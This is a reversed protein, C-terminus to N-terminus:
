EGTPESTPALAARNAEEILNFVHQHGAKEIEHEMQQRQGPTLLLKSLADVQAQMRETDARFADIDRKEDRGKLRIKEDALKAMLESNLAILRKNQEQLSLLQPDINSDFLYPKQAKLERQFRECMEDAGPFDANKLLLDFGLSALENNSQMLMSLREWAEQRQTAYDPGPDSVCEYEGIAPNLAIQAAEEDMKEQQLEQVAEKQEPDIMIWSRKGADDEIQMARKTDYIKPALDLFQVGLFREMDSMHEPFHYTATDGQEKRENIAKGSAASQTDNEGLQAQYQGSVMMMWREATQIGQIYAQSPQPRDIRQPPAIRQLEGDAEDDVDNYTLVAVTEINATKWAEQGEIARAPAVWPSRTQSAVDQVSMSSDYNLMRQADILSRTHGKRDLTGDVILERGVCRCIPIYKGPWDGRDVIKNGAILFWEVQDNTVKRTGGEITGSKIDEILQKYIDPGSDELIESQLKEVESGNEDKYWVYRDPVQKKRYYKALMIEKDSIWSAFMSDIPASGVKDKWQPYKRNFEKRSRREFVFGFNADSGDPETIWPDLYVATPDRAAKFYIEQNRSRNSVYRTDVLMYGIGGDVQHEAVKRRQASYKSINKVRNLLHQMVQASKYSAKGATPRIKPGFSNKSMENIIIDNHGRVKNITLCPLDSDGGTRQAYIKTPWQFANRPDGNAFKTDERSREDETGQFENVSKWREVAEKVIPDDGPLNPDDDDVPSVM